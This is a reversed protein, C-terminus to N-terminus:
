IPQAAAAFRGTELQLSTQVMVDTAHQAAGLKSVTWLVVQKHKM